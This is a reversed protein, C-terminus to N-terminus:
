IDVFKIASLIHSKSNRRCSARSLKTRKCIECKPDKPFHTFLSHSGKVKGSLLPDPRPPESLGKSDSGSSTSKPEVLNEVFEKLGSGCVCKKLPTVHLPCDSHPMGGRSGRFAVRHAYAKVWVPRVFVNPSFQQPRIKDQLDFFRENPGWFIGPEGRLFANLVPRAVRWWIRVAPVSRNHLICQAEAGYM